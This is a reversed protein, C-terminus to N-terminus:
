KTQYAKKQHFFPAVLHRQRTRYDDGVEDGLQELAQLSKASANDLTLLAQQAASIDKPGRIRHYAGPAKTQNVLKQAFNDAFHSQGDLSTEFLKDKWDLFAMKLDSANGSHAWGNKQPLCAISLVAYDNFQIWANQGKLLKGGGVFYELAEQIGCLTPNNAWVGGDAYYRKDSFTAPFYTPAASTALAADMMSGYKSAYNGGEPHPFKFVRPRGSTLNFAPICLLNGAESMMTHGLVEGLAKRLYTNDYKGNRAIQRILGRFGNLFRKAPFILPGHEKYFSVLEKAPLGKSLALAILGGTSTGCIMDFHEGIPAGFAEELHSLVTATYLGKIGGGDISLIKFTKNV